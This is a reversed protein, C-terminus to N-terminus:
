KDQKKKVSFLAIGLIGLIIPTLLIIGSLVTVSM